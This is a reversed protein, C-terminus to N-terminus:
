YFNYYVTQFISSQNCTASLNNGLFLMKVLAPVTGNTQIYTHIYNYRRIACITFFFDGFFCGGSNICIKDRMLYFCWFWGVSLGIKFIIIFHGRILYLFLELLTPSVPWVMEISPYQLLDQWHTFKYLFNRNYCIVYLAYLQIICTKKEWLVHQHNLLFMLNFSTQFTVILYVIIYLVLGHM